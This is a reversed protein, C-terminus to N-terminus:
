ESVIVYDKIKEYAAQKIGSVKMVDEPKEFLGHEERYAIISRARSEGIGPLTCLMAEDATNLNVKGNQQETENQEAVNKHIGDKKQVYGKEIAQEISVKESLIYLESHNETSDPKGTEGAEENESEVKLGREWSVEEKTPVTIKMGDELIFAQNLYDAQADERFGGAKQIAEYLRQNEKLYYVGPQKVAGCIHVAIETITEVEETLVMSNGIQTQKKKLEMTEENNNQTLNEESQGQSEKQLINQEKESIIIEDKLVIASNDQQVLFSEESCGLLFLCICGIGLTKVIKRRNLMYEGKPSNGM